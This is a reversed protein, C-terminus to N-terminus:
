ISGCRWIEAARCLYFQVLMARTPYSVGATEATDLIYTDNLADFELQQGDPGILKVKYVAM